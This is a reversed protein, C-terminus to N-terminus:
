SSSTPKKSVISPSGRWRTVTPSPLSPQRRLCGREAGPAVHYLPAHCPSVGTVRGENSLSCLEDPARKADAGILQRLISRQRSWAQMTVVAAFPEPRDYRHVDFREPPTPGGATMANLM